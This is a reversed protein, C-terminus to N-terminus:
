RLAWKAMKMVSPSAQMEERLFLFYQRIQDESLTGPDCDFHEAVKWAACVYHRKTPRRYDKLEVLQKFKQISLPTQNM